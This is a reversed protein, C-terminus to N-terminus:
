FEVILRSTYAFALSAYDVLEDLGSSQEKKEFRRERAENNRKKRTTKENLFCSLFVFPSFLSFFSTFLFLIVRNFVLVSIM